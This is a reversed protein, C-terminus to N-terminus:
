KSGGKGYAQKIAEDANNIIVDLQHLALNLLAGYKSHTTIIDYYSELERGWSVSDTFYGDDLLRLADVTSSLMASINELKDLLNM